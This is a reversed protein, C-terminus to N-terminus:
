PAAEARADHGMPWALALGRVSRASVYRERGIFGKTADRTGQREAAPDAFPGVGRTVPSATRSTITPEGSAPM